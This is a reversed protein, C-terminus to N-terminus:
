IILFVAKESKLAQAGVEARRNLTWIIKRSKETFYALTVNTPIKENSNDTIQTVTVQMVWILYALM